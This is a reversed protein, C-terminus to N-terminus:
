FTYYNSDSRAKVKCTLRGNSKAVNNEWQLPRLNSPADSGNHDQSIIHDIEWGFNSDRKGYSQFEIWAGCEDQRYTNPDYGSIIKGKNWTLIIDKDSM